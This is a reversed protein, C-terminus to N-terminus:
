ARIVGFGAYRVNFSWKFINDPDEIDLWTIDGQIKSGDYGGFLIEGERVQEGSGFDLQPVVLSWIASDIIGEQVLSDLFTNTPGPIGSILRANSGNFSLGVTHM